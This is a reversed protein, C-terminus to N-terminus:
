GLYKELFTWVVTGALLGGLIRMVIRQQRENALLRRLAVGCFVWLSGFLPFLVSFLLSITALRAWFFEDSPVFTAIGSIVITWAKPNIWQFLIAFAVYGLPSRRVDAKGGSDKHRKAKPFAITYSLYLLVAGSVYMLIESFVPVRQFLAGLGLGVGGWLIVMGICVGALYSYAYLKGRREAVTMIIINNPGPTVSLLTCFLVM